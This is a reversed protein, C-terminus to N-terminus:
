GPQSTASSTAVARPLRVTFRAGATPANPTSGRAVDSAINEAVITGHHAEVLGKVLGLGVGSSSKGNRPDARRWPHFALPLTAAAIGSGDDEVTITVVDDHQALRVLVRTKAFRRANGLLNALVQGLRETDVPALIPESPPSWEFTVRKEGEARREIEIAHSVLPRLDNPRLVLDLRGAEIRAFDVLVGAFRSLRQASRDMLRALVQQDDTLTGVSPHTMEKLAGVLVGLPSRVDHSILSLMGERQRHADELEARLSQLRADDSAELESHFVFAYGEMTAAARAHLPRSAGDRMLSVLREGVGGPTAASWLARIESENPAGAISWIPKRKVEGANCGFLACAAPNVEVCAGGGDTLVIADFSNVFAAYHLPSADARPRVTQKTASPVRAGDVRPLPEISPTGAATAKSNRQM